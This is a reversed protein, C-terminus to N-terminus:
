RLLPENLVLCLLFYLVDIRLKKWYRRKECTSTSSGIKLSGSEGDTQFNLVTNNFNFICFSMSVPGEGHRGRKPFSNYNIKLIRPRCGFAPNKKGTKGMSQSFGHSSFLYPIHHATCLFSRSDAFRNGTSM